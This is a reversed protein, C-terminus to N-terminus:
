DSQAWCAFFATSTNRGVAGVGRQMVQLPDALAMQRLAAECDDLNKTPARRAIVEIVQAQEFSPFDRGLLVMNEIVDWHLHLAHILSLPKVM